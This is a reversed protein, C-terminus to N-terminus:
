GAVCFFFAVDEHAGEGGVGVSVTVRWVGPMFLYLPTVGFTGDANPTVVARVSTGHGHDPMFPTVDITAGPIAAGSADTVRLTWSNTGRLPPAPDSAILTVKVTGSASAKTLNATYTDVRSDGACSVVSSDDGGGGGDDTTSSSSCPALLAAGLLSAFRLSLM